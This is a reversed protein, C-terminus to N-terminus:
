PSNISGPSLLNLRRATAALDQQLQPFFRLTKEFLLLSCMFWTAGAGCAMFQLIMLLLVFGLSNQIGYQRAVGLIFVPPGFLLLLGVCASVGALALWRLKSYGKLFFAKNILVPIHDCSLNLPLRIRAYFILALFLSPWGVFHWLKLPLPLKNGEFASPAFLYDAGFTMDLLMVGTSAACLFIVAMCLLYCLYDSDDELQLTVSLWSVPM